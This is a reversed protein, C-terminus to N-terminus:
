GEQIATSLVHCSFPLSYSIRLFTSVNRASRAPPSRLLRLNRARKRPTRESSSPAQSARGLASAASSVKRGPNDFLSSRRSRAPRFQSSCYRAARNEGSPCIAAFRRPITRLTDCPNHAQIRAKKRPHSSRARECHPAEEYRPLSRWLLRAKRDAAPLAHGGLRHGGM